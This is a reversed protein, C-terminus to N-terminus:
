MARNQATSLASKGRTWAAIVLVREREREIRPRLVCEGPANELIVRNYIYRIFSAPSPASPGADGLLHLVRTALTTFECDEIFECLHFLGDNKSEPIVQSAVYIHM